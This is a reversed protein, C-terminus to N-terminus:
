LIVIRVTSGPPAQSGPEPSQSRVTGERDGFLEGLIRTEEVTFGAGELVGRARGTSQGTVDPVTVSAPGDSVVVAVPRGGRLNAGAVPEQRIVLGEDVTDSHETSVRGLSLGAGALARAAEERALGTVDPVDFLEPGLSVTVLVTNFRRLETGPGPDTSIVSDEAVVDHHVSALSYGVGTQQLEEVAAAKSHGEVDPVVVLAGPGSGFFWGALVLVATLILVVAAWIWM